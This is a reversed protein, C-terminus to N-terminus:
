DEVTAVVSNTIIRNTFANVMETKIEHDSTEIEIFWTPVFIAQGRVILTMKYALQRWLIKSNSPIQNNIYLTNIADRESYTPMIERLPQLESIHTQIYENVRWHETEKELFFTIRSAPDNIIIDEYFQGAIIEPFDNSLTSEEVNYQYEKGFLVLGQQNLIKAIVEPAQNVDTLLIVDEVKHKLLNDEITTQRGLLDPNNLRLRESKRAEDFNTPVGSLYYGERKRSSFDGEYTINESELRKHLPITENTRSTITQNMKAERYMSFLFVNLGLFALFFIWEIRKFDM